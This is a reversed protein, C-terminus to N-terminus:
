CNGQFFGNMKERLTREDKEYDPSLSPQGPFNEMHLTQTPFAFNVGLEEALMMIKLIVEQRAKLEEPWTAVDFFIYFLINLSSAGMDNLYINYYDKRTAQHEKVIKELGEVFIAILSPPTDYTVAINTKFRRYQRLGMNDITHDALKGNPVSILSNHFTRIRTSRFGVEEVSGDIKDSIIWDGIQFPRDIFIMFSGFLNKLTDQAALAFALGGISIGALLATIDFNLNELIFLFGTIVVFVKLARRLLPVVQDDLTSATKGALKELYAAILDVLKYLVVTCFFPILAQLTLVIYRNTTIPLQLGPIMASLFIVIILLSFPRAVPRIFKSAIKPQGLQIIMRIIIREFIWTLIKHFLFSLLILVLIGLIQWLFFGFYKEGTQPLIELLKNVFWPYVEKHLEPILSVTRASYQWKDGVKEVYIQPLRQDVIFRQKGTVSDRYNPTNPIEDLYIFYGKGDFIQKLMIGLEEREEDTYGSAQLTKAAVSPVYSDDQLYKLHTYVTYYPTSLNIQLTDPNNGQAQLNFFGACFFFFLM